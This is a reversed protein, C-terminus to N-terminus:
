HVGLPEGIQDKYDVEQKNGKDRQATEQHQPPGLDAPSVHGGDDPAYEDFVGAEHARQRGELNRQPLASALLAVGAAEDGVVQGAHEIRFAEGRVVCTRRPM